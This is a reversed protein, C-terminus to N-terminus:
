RNGQTRQVRDAVQMTPDVLRRHQGRNDDGSTRIQTGQSSEASLLVIPSKWKVGNMVGRQCSHSREKALLVVACQAIILRLSESHLNATM